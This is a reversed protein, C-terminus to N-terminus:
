YCQFFWDTFGIALSAGAGTAAASTTTIKRDARSGNGSRQDPTQESM